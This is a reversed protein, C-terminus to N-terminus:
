FKPRTFIYVAHKKNELFQHMLIIDHNDLDNLFVDITTKLDEKTFETPFEAYSFYNWGQTSLECIEEHCAYDQPSLFM